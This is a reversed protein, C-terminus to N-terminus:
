PSAPEIAGSRTKAVAIEWLLSQAMLASDVASWLFGAVPYCTFCHAGHTELDVILMIMTTM